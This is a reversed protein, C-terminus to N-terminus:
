KLLKRGLDAFLSILPAIVENSGIQGLTRWAHLPVWVEKSQADAANLEDDAALELLVSVDDESFGYQLYDHWQGGRDVEGLTFLVNTKDNTAM